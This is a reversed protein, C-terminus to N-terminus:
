AVKLLRAVHKRWGKLQPHIGMAQAMTGTYAGYKVALQYPWAYSTYEYKAAAEPLRAGARLMTAIDRGADACCPECRRGENLVKNECGAGANKCPHTPEPPPPRDIKRAENTPKDEWALGEPWWNHLPNGYLHSADMGRPRPKDFTWLVAKQVTFTHASKCAPNDCRMDMQVYGSSNLRTSVEGGQLPRGNRGTRDLSRARGTDSVEYGTFECRGIRAMPKWTTGPMGKAHRRDLWTAPCEVDPTRLTESIIDAM